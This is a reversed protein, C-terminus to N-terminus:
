NKATEKHSLVAAIKKKLVIQLTPLREKLLSYIELASDWDGSSERIKAAAIGAEYTWQADFAEDDGLNKRTVVNMYHELARDILRNKESGLKIEALKGCVNGLCVEAHSRAAVDADVSGVVNSFSEAANKYRGEAQAADRGAFQFYCDGIRGWALPVLANTSFDKPIRSFATIADRLVAENTNSLFDQSLTDGLAFWTEAKLAVAANTDKDLLGILEGFYKAAETYDLRDYAARGAMLRAQYALEPAPDFKQYLEQYNKEANRFDDRNWFFDAIWNQALSALNNSPFRVVFNTMLAFANTEQGAKDFVLARSFEGQPLLIHNTFNTVWAGYAALAATWNKEQVYTQAIALKIEAVQPSEPFRQLFYLFLHRAEAEKGARNLNEGVLLLSQGGFSGTPFWDLLRKMANTAAVDNGMKLSARVIQFLAPEFLSNTVRELAGFNQILLQYNTVAAAYNTQQVQADALKFRAVACDESVPLRATAQFFDAEAEPFKQQIWFCWGRNLFVKGLQQSQPFNTIVTNLNTVAQDFLSAAAAADLKESVFEKLRLEGLALLALDLSADMPNKDAFNELRRIAHTTQRQALSLEVTKFLSIRRLDVPVNTSGEILNLDYVQIAEPLRNLKELVEGRLLISEPIRRRESVNQAALLLNTTTQLAIEPQGMQLQIQCLLFIQRWKADPTLTRGDLQALAKESEAFRSQKSLAEALLLDGNVAFSSNAQAKAASQFKGGVPQLLEIVRPWRELKSEALAEDYCAELQHLSKPFNKNLESFADAAARYDKKQFFTQGIWYQYEDALTGAQPLQQQLLELAGTYNTQYFRSQAQHLFAAIKNTSEPHDATFKAFGQEAQAYIKTGLLIVAANFDRTEAKSAASVKPAFCVGLLFIFPLFYRM